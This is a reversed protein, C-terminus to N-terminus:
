AGMQGAVAERLHALMAKEVAPKVSRIVKCATGPSLTTFLQQIDEETMLAQRYLALEQQDLQDPDVAEVPRGISYTFALKIAALDGQKAMQLLQRALVQVDPERIERLLASRLAAVRRGFPNGPGGPNGRRFRGKADRIEGSAGTQPAVDGKHNKTNIRDQGIMIKDGGTAVQNNHGADIKNHRTERRLWAASGPSEDKHSEGNVVSHHRLKKRQNEWNVVSHHRYGEPSQLECNTVNARKRGKARKRAHGDKRKNKQHAGNVVSLHRHNKKQPAGNVVSHHRLQNNHGTERGLWEAEREHKHIEGNVVSHQRQGSDPEHEKNEGACQPGPIEGQICVHHSENGNSITGNSSTSDFM